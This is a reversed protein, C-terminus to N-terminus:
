VRQSAAIQITAFSNLKLLVFEVGGTDKQIKLNKFLRGEYTGRPSIGMRVVWCTKPTRRCIRYTTDHLPSYDLAITEHAYVYKRGISLKTSSFSLLWRKAKKFLRQKRLNEIRRFKEKDYVFSMINDFMPQAFYYEQQPQVLM